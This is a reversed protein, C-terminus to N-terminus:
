GDSRIKGLSPATLLPSPRDTPSVLRATAGGFPAASVVRDIRVTYGSRDGSTPTVPPIGVGPPSTSVPNTSRTPSVWGSTAASPDACLPSVTSASARSARTREM